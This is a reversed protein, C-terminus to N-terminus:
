KKINEGVKKLNWTKGDISIVGKNVIYYRTKEELLVRGDDNEANKKKDLFSFVAKLFEDKFQYDTDGIVEAVIFSRRKKIKASDSSSIADNLLSIDKELRVKDGIFVDGLSYKKADGDWFAHYCLFKDQASILGCTFFILFHIKKM